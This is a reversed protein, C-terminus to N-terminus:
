HVACTGCAGWIATTGALPARGATEVLERTKGAGAGVGFWQIVMVHEEVDHGVIKYMPRGTQQNPKPDGFEDVRQGCHCLEHLVTACFSADEVRAVYEAWLTILFDHPEEGFWQRFQHEFRLKKWGSLSPPPCALEATGCYIQGQRKLPEQAWLYAIRAEALHANREDYFPAGPLLFAATTWAAVEPAPLFLSPGGSLVEAPPIPRGASRGGPEPLTALFAARQDIPAALELVGLGLVAEFDAATALNLGRPDAVGLRGKSNSTM